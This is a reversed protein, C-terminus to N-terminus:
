ILALRPVEIGAGDERSLADLRKFLHTLRMGYPIPSTPHVESADQIISAMIFGMNM